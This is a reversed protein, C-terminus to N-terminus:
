HNNKDLLFGPNAFKFIKLLLRTFDFFEFKNLAILLSNINKLENDEFLNLKKLIEIHKKASYNDGFLMVLRILFAFYVSLLSIISILYSVKEISFSINLISSIFIAPVFLVLFIRSLIILLQKITSSFYHYQQNTAQITCKTCIAIDFLYTSDAVEPALKIVNYNPSYYNTKKSKLIRIGISNLKNQRFLLESFEKSTIDKSNKETKLKVYCVKAQNNFIFGVGLFLLITIFDLIYLTIWDM